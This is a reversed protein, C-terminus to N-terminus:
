NEQLTTEEATERVPVVNLPEAYETGVQSIALNWARELSAFNSGSLPLEDYPASEFDIENGAPLVAYLRPNMDARRLMWIPLYELSEIKVEGTYNDKQINVYLIIGTERVERAFDSYLSVQNHMFNGISYFVIGEKVTGDELTVQILESPQLVHPHHAIVLDAGLEIYARAYSRIGERTYQAYEDGMHPSVIVIEAGYARCLDIQEKVQDKDIFCTL